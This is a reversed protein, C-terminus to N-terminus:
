RLKKKKSCVISFLYAFAILQGIILFFMPFVISFNYKTSLTTILILALLMLTQMIIYSILKIRKEMLIVKMKVYNEM